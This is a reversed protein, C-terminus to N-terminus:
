QLTWRCITDFHIEVAGQDCYPNGNETLNCLGLRNKTSVLQDQGNQGRALCTNIDSTFAYNLTFQDDNGVKDSELWPLRFTLPGPVVPVARM